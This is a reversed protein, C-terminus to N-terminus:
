GCLHEADDSRKDRRVVCDGRKRRVVGQDDGVVCGVDLLDRCDDGGDVDALGVDGHEFELMGGGGVQGWDESAQQGLLAARALGAGRRGLDHGFGSAIGEEYTGVVGAPESCDTLEDSREVAWACAPVDVDHVQTVGFCAM